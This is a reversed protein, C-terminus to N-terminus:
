IQALQVGEAKALRDAKKAPLRSGGFTAGGRLVKFRAVTALSLSPDFARKVWAPRDTPMRDPRDETLSGEPVTSGDRLDALPPALPERVGENGLLHEDSDSGPLLITPQLYKLARQCRGIPLLPLGRHDDHLPPSTTGM